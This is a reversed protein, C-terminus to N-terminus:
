IINFHTRSNAEGCLVCKRMIREKYFGFNVLYRIMHGDRKDWAMFYKKNHTNRYHDAIELGDELALSKISYDGVYWKFKGYDEKEIKIIGEAKESGAVKSLWKVYESDIKNFIWPEDGFHKKYKMINKRMLVWLSHRDLPRNLIVRLRNSNVQNSLGLISKTYQLNGREVRDIIGKMDLFCSMGYIVRSRQYYMSLNLLSKPTLTFKNIWNSRMLYVELKKKTEELGTLPSLQSNLKMGLYKYTVKIPYGKYKSMNNRDNDVILIGSKKKNVEIENVTAWNGLCEIVKDLEQKNKCIVALDDAYALVEFSVSKLSRVLDDIYINFLWPSLIGGQLVGRNVNIHKQLTNLRMRASSYIVRIANIIEASYGREEMKVFLKRHNVSDYAAKLDIFFVYKEEKTRLFKLDYVRQRLRMINVDCGLGKVFGVQEKSIKIDNLAEWLEVRGQIVREMLKMLVGVISIPRINELKGNSDPCKNLCLLRACFLEDPIPEQGKLLETLLEAIGECCKDFSILDKKKLGYIERFATGPIYDWSTAKDFSINNLANSVEWGQVAM